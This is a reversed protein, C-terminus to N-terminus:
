HYNKEFVTRIKETDNLQIGQSIENKCKECSGYVEVLFIECDLRSAPNKVSHREKCHPCYFTNSFYEMYKKYDFGTLHELETETIGTFGPNYRKSSRLIKRTEEFNSALATFYPDIEQYLRFLNGSINNNADIPYTIGIKKLFDFMQLGDGFAYNDAPYAKKIDTKDTWHKINNSKWNIFYNEIEEPKTKPFYKCLIEINPLWSSLDEKKVNEDYYEPAPNFKLVENGKDYLVFFWFDGDHIELTLVATKLKYSLAQSLEWHNFLSPFLITANRNSSDIVCLEHSNQDSTEELKYSDQYLLPKLTKIAKSKPTSIITSLHLFLGM